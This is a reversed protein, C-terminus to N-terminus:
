YSFRLEHLDLGDQWAHERPALDLTLTVSSLVEYGAAHCCRIAELNRSEPSISLQALGRKRAQAAVHDLLARGIGRGRLRGDVVIPEVVADRGADGGLVLGILGVVGEEPHEAVWMGALDLRTLYQEFGAGLDAGGYGPDRYLDRHEQTLEAWLARCQPHDLPRYPRITVPESM